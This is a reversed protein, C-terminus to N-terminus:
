LYRKKRKWGYLLGCVPVAFALSWFGFRLLNSLEGSGTSPMFPWLSFLNECVIYVTAGEQVAGQVTPNDTDTELEQRVSRFRTICNYKKETIKYQIGNRVYPVILKGGSRISFHGKGDEILGYGIVNGQPDLRTFTFDDKPVNGNEDYFEVDFEYFEDPNEANKAVKTLEISGENEMRTETGFKVQPLNFTMWCTSGSAGRETYFFTLKHDTGGDREPDLYDWLNAYEGVSSHIGGIDIVLQDDLFVWMDDDGFFAYDLPGCYGEPLSFNVSFSMGFYGNHDLGDDSNALATTATVGSTEAINGNFFRRTGNKTYDGWKADHGDEGFSSFSDAPWFNNTWISYVTNGTQPHNFQDLNQVNTNKVSKLTYNDGSKEYVLTEGPYKTKGHVVGDRFLFPASIGPAYVPYYGTIEDGAFGDVLGFACGKYVAPNRNYQNIKIGNWTDNAWGMNTNANGFGLHAGTGTYNDPHNIGKQYTDLYVMKFDGQSSTPYATLTAPDVANPGNATKYNESSYVQGDSIDYDYFTVEKDKESVVPEYVFRLTTGSSILITDDSVNAENTTLHLDHLSKMEPFDDLNYVTFDSSDTSQSNAGPPLVWIESLDYGTDEHMRDIQGISPNLSYVYSKDEYMPYLKKNRLVRNGNSADVTLFRSNLAGVNEPLNGGTTDIVELKNSGGVDSLDLQDVYAYYQVNYMADNSKGNTIMVSSHIASVVATVFEGNETFTAEYNSGGKRVDRWPWASGYNKLTLTQTSGDAAYFLRTDGANGTNSGEFVTAYVDHVDITWFGYNRAIEAEAYTGASLPKSLYVFKKDKLDDTTDVQLTYDSNNYVQLSGDYVSVRGDAGLFGFHTGGYTEAQEADFGYKTLQSVMRSFTISHSNESYRVVGDFTYPNTDLYVGCSLEYQKAKTFYIDNTNKDKRETVYSAYSPVIRDLMRDDWTVNNNHWVVQMSNASPMSAHSVVVHAGEWLGNPSGVESILRFGSSATLYLDSGTTATNDFVQISGSLYNWTGAIVVAGGTAARNGVIIAREHISVREGQNMAGCQATATNWGILADGYIRTPKGNSYLGGGNKATNGIVVANGHVLITGNTFVAGGNNVASNNLLYGGTLVVQSSESGAPFNVVGGNWTSSNDMIVGGTMQFSGGSASNKTSYTIVGDKGNQIIGNDLYFDGGNVVIARNSGSCQIRGTTSQNLDLTKYSTSGKVGFVLLGDKYSYQHMRGSYPTVTEFLTGVTDTVHLSGGTNVWFLDSGAGGTNHLTHTHLDVILVNTGTSM